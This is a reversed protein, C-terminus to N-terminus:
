RHSADRTSGMIATSAREVLSVQLLHHAPPREPDAIRSALTTVACEGLATVPQRITTLQPEVLSAWPIDDYGVLLVEGPVDRGLERLTRLAGIAMVDSAAFVADLAPDALLKAARKPLDLTFPAECQWLLNDVNLEALFGDRRSCASASDGPGTLLGIKRRGLKRLLAAAAAGGAHHDASISDFAALQSSPRDLVVMPVTPRVTTKSSGPIWIIGDVRESLAMMAEGEAKADDGASALILAHGWRWAAETVAQALAPFFPNALDPLLLGVAHHRGTRLARALPSRRYNLESIAQEVRARTEASVPKTDNLVFSVTATSVGACEAVDRLSPGARRVM